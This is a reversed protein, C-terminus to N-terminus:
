LEGVLLRRVPRDCRVAVDVDARIWARIAGAEAKEKSM